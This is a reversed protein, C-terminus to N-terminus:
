GISLLASLWRFLLKSVLGAHQEKSPGRVDPVPPITSTKLPDLRIKWREANSKSRDSRTSGPADKSGPSVELIAPNTQLEVEHINGKECDEKMGPSVEHTVSTPGDSLQTDLSRENTKISSPPVVGGDAVSREM